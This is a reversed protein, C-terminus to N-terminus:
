SINEHKGWKRMEYIEDRAANLAAEADNSTIVAYGDEEIIGDPHLAQISLQFAEDVEEKTPNRNDQPIGIIQYLDALGKTEFFSSYKVDHAFLLMDIGLSIFFGFGPIFVIGGSIIELIGKAIEGKKFRYVGCAVGIGASAIPVAHKGM